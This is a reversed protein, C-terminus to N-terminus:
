AIQRINLTSGNHCILMTATTGDIELEIEDGATLPTIFDFSREAEVAQNVFVANTGVWLDVPTGSVNKRVRFADLFGSVGQELLTVGSIQYVGTIPVTFRGTTSNFTIGNSALTTFTAGSSTQYPNFAGVAVTTDSDLVVSIYQDLVGGGTVRADWAGAERFHFTNTDQAYAIVGNAAAFALLAAELAFLLVSELLVWAGAVRKFFRDTDQAYAITGDLLTSALLGVETPFITVGQGGAGGFIKLTRGDQDITIQDGGGSLVGPGPEKKGRVQLLLSNEAPITFSKPSGGTPTFFMEWDAVGKILDNAGWDFHGKGDAAVDVTHAIDLAQFTGRYTGQLQITWGTIDQGVLEFNVPPALDGEVRHIIHTSM